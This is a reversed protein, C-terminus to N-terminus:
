RMEDLMKWLPPKEKPPQYRFVAKLLGEGGEESLGRALQKLQLGGPAFILSTKLASKM